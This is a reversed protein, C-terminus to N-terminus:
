AKVRFLGVLMTVVAELSGVVVVPLWRVVVVLNFRAHCATQGCWCGVRDALRAWWRHRRRAVMRETAVEVVSSCVVAPVAAGRGAQPM